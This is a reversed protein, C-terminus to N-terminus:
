KIIVLLRDTYNERKRTKYIDVHKNYRSVTYRDNKMVTDKGGEKRGEVLRLRGLAYVQLQLIGEAMGSVKQAGGGTARHSPHERKAGRCVM